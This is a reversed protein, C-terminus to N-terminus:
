DNREASIAPAHMQIHGKTSFAVPAAFPIDLDFEGDLEYPIERYVGERVIFLLAPATRMLNLDVSIAFSGDSSAPVTFSGQTEGSAFRYGDLEIGYSVSQIPLPFPNPNIVDFDLVFTQSKLDVDRVEVNRLSVQPVEVLAGTSACGVLLCACLAAGPNALGKM